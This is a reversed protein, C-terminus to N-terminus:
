EDLTAETALPAESTAVGSATMLRKWERYFSRTPTEDTSHGILEGNEERERHQGRSLLLWDVGSAKVGTQCSVFIEIDDPTGFGSPGYFHEHSHMRSTNLGDPVGKLDYAHLEVDTQDVRVPRIVRLHSDFLYLNPFVFIITRALIKGVETDSYRARLADGYDPYSEMMRGTWSSETTLGGRRELIGHGYPLARTCGGERFNRIDRVPAEGARELLKQWSAHVYNGHYGDVGNEAQWKWNGPYYYKHSPAAIEIEGCPSRNLWSDIYPQVSRLYEHLSPGGPSLSAFVLGRYSESRVVQQLGYATKDFDEPYGSAMAVGVLSGDNQYVWAHYPCRFFNSHGREMRCVVAGRHRCRNLLVYIEGDEHRTVIVPQHAITTTKYDGPHAVESEHAVYVWTTEFIHAMEADFVDPDTYLRTHLRFPVRDDVLEGPQVHQESIQPVIWNGYWGHLNDQRTGDDITRTIVPLAVPRVRAPFTTPRSPGVSPEHFGPLLRQYSLRGM